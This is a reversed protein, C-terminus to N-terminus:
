YSDSFDSGVIVVVDAGAPAAEGSPLSSVNAKVKSFTAAISKLDSDTVKKDKSVSSVSTTKYEGQANSTSLVNFKEKDLMDAAKKALGATKTSNLVVVKLKEAEKTPTPTVSVSPTVSVTPTGTVNTAQAVPTGTPNATANIPAVAIIKHNSPRYLIAEKTSGYIMVKDGNKANRFFPQDALKTVDTVTAITPTENQPLEMKDAVEDILAKVAASNLKGDTGVTQKGNQLWNYGVLVAVIIFSLLLFAGIQFRKSSFRGFFTGKMKKEEQPVVVEAIQEEVKEGYGHKTSTSEFFSEKKKRAAKKM